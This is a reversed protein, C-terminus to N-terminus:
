RGHGGSRLRFLRLAYAVTLMHTNFGPIREGALKVNYAYTVRAKLMGFGVGPRWVFFPDDEPTRYYIFQSGCALVAMTYFGVKLGYREPDDLRMEGGLYYGVDVPLHGDGGINFGIGLEAYGFTGQNLGAVLVVEDRRVMPPIVGWPEDETQALVSSPLSLAAMLWLM